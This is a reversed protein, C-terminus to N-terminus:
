VTDKISLLRANITKRLTKWKKDYTVNNMLQVIREMKTVVNIQKYEKKNKLDSMHNSGHHNILNQCMVERKQSWDLVQLNEYNLAYKEKDFVNPMLKKVNKINYYATIKLKYNPLM